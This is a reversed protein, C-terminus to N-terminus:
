KEFFKFIKCIWINKLFFRARLNGWNKWINSLVMLPVWSFIPSGASLATWSNRINSFRWNKTNKLVYYLPFSNKGTELDHIPSSYPSIIYKVSFLFFVHEPPAANAGGTRFHTDSFSSKRRCCTSGWTHTHPQPRFTHVSKSLTRKWNKTPCNSGSIHDTRIGFIFPSFIM